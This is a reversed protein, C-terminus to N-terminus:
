VMRKQFRARQSRVFPVTVGALDTVVSGAQKAMAKNKGLAFMFSKALM